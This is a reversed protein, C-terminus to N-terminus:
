LVLELHPLDIFTQDTIIEQDQDWNGGWIMQIGNSDAIGIIIGALLIFENRREWRLHPPAPYYPAVDVAISPFINHKSHPWTKTSKKNNFAEMQATQGRYGCVVTFDYTHIAISLVKQIDHHCTALRDFSTKGFHPM